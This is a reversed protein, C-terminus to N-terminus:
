FKVSREVLLKSEFVDYLQFLYVGRLTRPLRYQFRQQPASQFPLTFIEEGFRNYCRLVYNGAAPFYVTLLFDPRSPLIELTPPEPPEGWPFGDYLVRQPAQAGLGQVVLRIRTGVAGEQTCLRKKQPLAWRDILHRSVERWAQGPRQELLLLYVLRDVKKVEVAFCLSGEEHLPGEWRCELGPLSDSLTLYLIAFFFM